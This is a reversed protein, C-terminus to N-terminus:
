KQTANKNQKNNNPNPQCNPQTQKKINLSNTESQINSSNKISQNSNQQHSQGSALQKSHKFHVQFKTQSTKRASKNEARNKILRNPARKENALQNLILNDIVELNVIFTNMSALVIEEHHKKPPKALRVLSRSMKNGALHKIDFNFSILRYIWRKLRIQSTKSLENANLASILSQHATINSCNKRYLCYKGMSCRLM